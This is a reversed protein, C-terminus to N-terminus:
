KTKKRKEIKLGYTASPKDYAKEEKKVEVNKSEDLIYTVGGACKRMILKIPTEGKYQTIPIENYDLKCTM